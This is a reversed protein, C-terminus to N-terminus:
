VLWGGSLHLGRAEWIGLRKQTEEISERLFAV